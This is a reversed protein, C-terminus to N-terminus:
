WGMKPELSRSGHVLDKRWWTEQISMIIVGGTNWLMLEVSLYVPFAQLCLFHVNRWISDIKMYNLSDKIEESVFGKNISQASIFYAESTFAYVKTTSIWEAWIFSKFPLVFVIHVIGSNVGRLLVYCTVFWPTMVDGCAHTISARTCFLSKVQSGLCRFSSSLIVLGWDRERTYRRSTM